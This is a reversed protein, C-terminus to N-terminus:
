IDAEGINLRPCFNAIHWAARNLVAAVCVTPSPRASSGADAGFPRMPSLLAENPSYCSSIGCAAASCPICGSLTASSRSFLSPPLAPRTSAEHWWDQQGEVPRGSGTVTVIGEYRLLDPVAAIPRGGSVFRWIWGSRSNSRRVADLKIAIETIHGIHQPREGRSVLHAHRSRQPQMGSFSFV